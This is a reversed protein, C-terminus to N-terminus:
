GLRSVARRLQGGGGVLVLERVGPGLGCAGVAGAQTQIVAVMVVVGVGPMGREPAPSPLVESGLPIGDGGWSCAQRPQEGPDRSAPTGRGQRAKM